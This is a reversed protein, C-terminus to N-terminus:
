KLDQLKIDFYRCYRPIQLIQLLMKRSVQEGYYESFEKGLNKIIYDTQEESINKDDLGNDVVYKLIDEYETIVSRLKERQLVTDHTNDDVSLQSLNPYKNRIENAFHKIYSVCGYKELAIYSFFPVADCNTVISRFKDSDLGMKSFTKFNDRYAYDTFMFPAIINPCHYNKLDELDCDYISGIYEDGLADRVIDHLKGYPKIGNSVNEDVKKGEIFYAGNQSKDSGELITPIRLRMAIKQAVWMFMFNCVDCGVFENLGYKKGHILAQRMVKKYVDEQIQVKIVDVQLKRAVEDINAKAIDNVLPHMVSIALPRLNYKEKAMQLLMTSDKGGSFMVGVDYMNEDSRQLIKDMRAAFIRNMRENVVKNDKHDNCFNCLGNEMIEVGPVSDDLICNMCQKKIKM